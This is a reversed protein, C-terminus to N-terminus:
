RACRVAQAKTSAKRRALRTLAQMRQLHAWEGLARQHTDAAAGTLEQEIGLHSPLVENNNVRAVTPADGRNVAAVLRDTAALYDQHAPLVRDALARDATDGEARIAGLAAVVATASQAFRALVQSSPQLRYELVLSQEASVATTAQAYDDSVRGATVARGVAAATAQSSWVAFVAVGLLVVVSAVGTVRHGRSVRGGDGTNFLAGSCAVDGIARRHDHAIRATM